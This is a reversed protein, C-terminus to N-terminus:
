KNIKAAGPKLQPVCSRQDKNHCLVRLQPMHSRTGEGPLSGLGRCQSNLTKGMPGGPSDRRLTSASVVSELGEKRGPIFM